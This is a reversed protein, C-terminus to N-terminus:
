ARGVATSNPCNAARRISVPRHPLDDARCQNRDATGQFGTEIIADITGDARKMTRAAVIGTGRETHYETGPERRQVASALGVAVVLSVEDPRDVLGGLTDALEEFGRQMAETSRDRQFAEVLEPRWEDDYVIRCRPTTSNVWWIRGFQGRCGPAKEIRAPRRRDRNHRRRGTGHASRADAHEGIINNVM